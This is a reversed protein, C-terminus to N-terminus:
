GIRNKQYDSIKEKLNTTLEEKLDFLQQSEGVGSFLQNIYTKIKQDLESKNRM